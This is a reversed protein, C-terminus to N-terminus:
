RERLGMERVLFRHSLDQLSLGNVEAAWAAHGDGDLRVFEFAAGSAQYESRIREAQDFPVITDETGHVILIPADSADWRSTGGFADARADVVDTGGWFDVVAAVRSSADPNTTPLTRDQEPTLERHFDDAESVGLSVAVQAGASSGMVAIHDSSVRLGDANAHLYRVAAKADRTAAYSAKGRFRELQSDRESEIADLWDQPATGYDNALRYDISLVVWGRAAFYEAFSVLEDQDREGFLFGGGHVVLLAPRPGTETRPVYLDGLLDVEEGRGANFDGDHSLGQAYTITETTWTLDGSPSISVPPTSEPERGCSVLFLCCALVIVVRLSGPGPQAHESEDSTM